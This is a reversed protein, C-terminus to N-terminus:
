LDKKSERLIKFMQIIAFRFPYFLSPFIDEFGNFLEKSVGVPTTLFDKIM